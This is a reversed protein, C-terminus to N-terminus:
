PLRGIATGADVRDNLAVLINDRVQQVSLPSGSADLGAEFHYAVTVAKSIGIVVRYNRAGQTGQYGQRTDEEILTVVGPAVARFELTEGSKPFFDWGYHFQGSYATMGFGGMARVGATDMPTVTAMPAEAPLAGSPDFLDQLLGCSALGVAALIVLAGVFFRTAWRTM